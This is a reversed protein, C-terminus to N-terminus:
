QCGPVGRDKLFSCPICAETEGCVDKDLFGITSAFGLMANFCKDMCVGAGLLVGAKCKVPKGDVLAKPVCKNGTSCTDDPADARSAEPIASESLCVGNSNGNTTCCAPLPKAPAAGGDGAQACPKDYVGISQCFPTPANNDEPNICPVCLQGASCVDPKLAGAARRELEPLLASTICGGPGIISTCSKLKEGGAQLVEDPVCVENANPCPALASAIPTKDKDYCHGKGNGCATLKALDVKVFQRNCSDTPAAGGSSSGGGSSSEGAKPGADPSPSEVPTIYTDSGITCAQTGILGLAGLAGVMLLRRGSSLVTLVM